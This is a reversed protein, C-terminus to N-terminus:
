IFSSVRACVYDELVNVKFEYRVFSGFKIHVLIACGFVMIYIYSACM